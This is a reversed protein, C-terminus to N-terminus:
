KSCVRYHTKLLHRYVVPEKYLMNNLHVPFKLKRTHILIVFNLLSIFSKRGM